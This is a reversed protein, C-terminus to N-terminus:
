AVAERRHVALRRREYPMLGGWIGEREPTSMAHELCERQVPCTGCIAVAIKKGVDHPDECWWLEPDQGACAADLQWDPTTLLDTLLGM